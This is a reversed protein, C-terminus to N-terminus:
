PGCAYGPPPEPERRPRLIGNCRDGIEKKLAKWCDIQAKFWPQDKHKKALAIALEFDKCPDNYGTSLGSSSLGTSILPATSFVSHYEFAVGRGLCEVRWSYLGTPDTTTVPNNRAYSYAPM